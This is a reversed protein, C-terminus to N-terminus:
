SPTKPTLAALKDAPIESQFTATAGYKKCSGINSDNIIWHHPPCTAKTEAQLKAWTSLYIHQLQPLSVHTYVETTSINSHGLLEQVVRLDAGGNLLHTAFTHRILHPYVHKGIVKGYEAMSCEIMKNGIRAGRSLAGTSLFVANTEQDDLLVPRVNVLYDNLTRLCPKGFLVIRAKDGKGHTIRIEQTEFNIDDLNMATLESIRCGTAYLVELIAQDEKSKPTELLTNMQDLTLFKPLRKDLKPSPLKYFPNQCIGETKLYKYFTRLDGQYGGITAKSLGRNFLLNAYDRWTTKNADRFSIDQSELIQSYDILHHKVEPIHRQSFSQARLHQIFQSLYLNFALMSYHLDSPKNEQLPPEVHATAKNGIDLNALISIAEQDLTPPAFITKRQLLIDSAPHTACFNKPDIFLRGCDKCKFRQVNKNKLSYRKQYGWKYISKSGCQPCKPMIRKGM